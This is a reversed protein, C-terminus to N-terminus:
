EIFDTQFMKAKLVNVRKSNVGLDSEGIRSESRIQLKNSKPLYAIELDDVFRMWKTTVEARIYGKELEVIKTRPNDEIIGKIVRFPEDISKVEWEEKVCHDIEICPPLELQYSYSFSPFGIVLCILISINIIRM